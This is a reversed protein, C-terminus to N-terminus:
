FRPTIKNSSHNMSSTSSIRINLQYPSYIMAPVVLATEVPNWYWYNQVHFAPCGSFWCTFIWHWSNVPLSGIGWFSWTPTCFIKVRWVGGLIALRSLLSTKRYKRKIWFLNPTEQFTPISDPHYKKENTPKSRGVRGKGSVLMDFASPHTSSKGKGWTTLERTPINHFHKGANKAFM